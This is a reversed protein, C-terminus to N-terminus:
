RAEQGAGPSDGRPEKGREDEDGLEQELQVALQINAQDLEDILTDAWDEAERRKTAEEDLQDQTAKLQDELDSIHEEASEKEDVSLGGFGSIWRGAVALATVSVVLFLSGFAIALRAYGLTISDSFLYQWISPSDFEDITKPSSDFPWEQGRWALVVVAVVIGGAAIRPVWKGLQGEDQGAM